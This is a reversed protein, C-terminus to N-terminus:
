QRTRTFTNRSFSRYIVRHDITTPTCQLYWRAGLECHQDFDLPIARRRTEISRFIQFLLAFSGSKTWVNTRYRTGNRKAQRTRKETYRTTRAPSDVDVRFFLFFLFPLFLFFFWSRVLTSGSRLLTRTYNNWINVIFSSVQFLARCQKCSTLLLLLFM